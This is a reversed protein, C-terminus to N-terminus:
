EGTKYITNFLKTKIILGGEGFLKLVDGPIDDDGTDKKNRM